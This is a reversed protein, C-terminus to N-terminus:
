WLLQENLAMVNPLCRVWDNTEDDNTVAVIAETVDVGAEELIAPDLANGRHGDNRYGRVSARRSGTQKSSGPMFVQINMESWNGLFVCM